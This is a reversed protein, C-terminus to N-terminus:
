SQNNADPLPLYVKFICGGNSGNEATIRGNYGEIIDRSIALGLGTGKAKDKTTFFPEFIAEANEATFGEGTDRFEAVVWNDATLYTSINLTGGKPMADTANSILNCFVQFLNGARIQPVGASYNQLIAINSAEAKIDMTRIAEEIIQEIKVNEFSAPNSRSFELLERIIQVMRMLGQRSYLLYEKPKEFNKEEISRIALNIYRLIGDIPNNLEHAVKSALKGITVFKETDAVTRHPKEATDQEWPQVKKDEPM